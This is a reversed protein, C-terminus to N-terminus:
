DTFVNRLQYFFREMLRLDETIIEAAGKMEQKFPIEKDYSTILKSPLSVNVLYFGEPNPIQSISKIKGQLAGYETDPYNELKINVTQGIKIKGSNQAPTKLKAIFESNEQPIITFVLDGQNVTQNKNWINLFSVKGDIKTSLVYKTEWNKIARKLQNFSQIVNKLLSIEEKTQTIITSSSTNNANSLAERLQSISTDINSYSRQAQLFSSQKTEYEQLSVVGKEFLIKYRNLNKEQFDLEAKSIKKQSQLSALRTKLENITVRNNLRDNSFPQLQKNLQYQLYSNEFLAYDTDIDGLFLIPMSNIPFFFNKNTFALTDVISKIYFVDKYNATNEIIALPSNALIQQNDKVFLTDINGTVNAYEKQPPIQTTVMAQANIIDPYKVFWTIALLIFIIILILTNGWRIMWNPVSTLIEQVEESRLEINDLNDPM